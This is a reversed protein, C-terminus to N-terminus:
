HVTVGLFLVTTKAHSAISQILRIWKKTKLFCSLLVAQITLTGCIWFNCTRINLIETEISWFGHFEFQKNKFHIIHLSLHRM